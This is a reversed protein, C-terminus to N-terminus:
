ATPKTSPVQQSPEVPAVSAVKQVDTPTIDPKQKPDVQKPNPSDHYTVLKPMNKLMEAVSLFQQSVRKETKKTDKRNNLIQIDSNYISNYTQKFLAM